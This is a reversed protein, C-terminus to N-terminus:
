LFEGVLAVFEDLCDAHLWHGAAPMTRIEVQPFLDRILPEDAQGVYDSRGGRLLLVPKRFPGPGAVAACLRPYNDALGRLNNKWQLEGSAARGLNKLLFRRLVLDPIAPALAAELQPRSSFATLDLAQLAALIRGFVPAYARPAMDGVVLKEVRAPYDLALQMATKAGMSHGIVRATELGRVAMFHDLDGAMLPYDMEATHPSQGHNRQDVAIVHWREALRLSVHHWNDASGLLGHLLIVPRGRGAEKFHLPVNL